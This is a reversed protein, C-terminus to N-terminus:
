REAGWRQAADARLENKKVKMSANMPLSDVVAVRRPVKFNAMRERCWATFVTEDLGVGGRTIIFAAPVEGMRADPIAVVAVQEIDPHTRLVSEVEAPYVNFGGVIVMDKKRDVIQLNGHPDFMGIDGTHLWGDADIVEATLEPEDWYGLMVNYGRVLVEGRMGRGLAHGEDDRIEVEVGEVPEGCTTALVEASDTPKTISVIATCETLGFGTLARQVNLESRLREILVAPVSTAGVMVARLSSLDHEDRHPHDLYAFHITPPGPVFVLHQEEIRRVMDDPDLMPIPVTSGGVMLMSLWGGKSGFCHFFPPVVGAREGPQLALRSVYDGFARLSQSHSLMVGKPKGTTGSTFMIDSADDPAIAAIRELVTEPSRGAGLAMFASWNLTGPRHADELLVVRDLAALSPDAARLSAVYDHGAFEGVTLLVKAGSKAIVFAAEAGIFRTNIPVLIAGAALAGLAGIVWEASNPAWIAVRDGPDVGLSIAANAADFMADRLEAYSWTRHEGVLAEVPGYREAQRLMLNPITGWELDARM